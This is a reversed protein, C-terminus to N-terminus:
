IRWKAKLYKWYWQLSLLIKGHNRLKEAYWRKHHYSKPLELPTGQWPSINEYKMYINELHPRKEYQWLVSWPKPQSAFHILKTEKLRQKVDDCKWLEMVDYARDLYLHPLNAFVINLADQDLAILDKKRKKIVKFIKNNIDNNLWKKLDILIVGSNFYKHTGLNLALNRKSLMPEIDPAVAIINEKMPLSFLKAISSVCIVDTDLYLLRDADLIYPFFLRYWAPLPINLNTKFQKFFENNIDLFYMHIDTQYKKALTKFREVNDVSINNCLLHFAFHKDSNNECISVISTGATRVANNDLGYGIHVPMRVKSNDFSFIKKDIITQLFHDKSIDM